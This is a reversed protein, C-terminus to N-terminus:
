SWLVGGPECSHALQAQSQHIPDGTGGTLGGWERPAAIADVSHTSQPQVGGLEQDAGATHSSAVCRAERLHFKKM